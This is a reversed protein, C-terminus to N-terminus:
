FAVLKDFISFFYNQILKENKARNKKADLKQKACASWLLLELKFHQFDAKIETEDVASVQFIKM